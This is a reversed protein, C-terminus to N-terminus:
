ETPMGAFRGIVAVHIIETDVCHVVNFGVATKTDEDVHVKNTTEGDTFVQYNTDAMAPFGLTVLNITETGGGVCTWSFSSIGTSKKGSAMVWDIAAQAFWKLRKRIEILM